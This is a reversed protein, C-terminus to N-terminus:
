KEAELDEIMGSKQFALKRREHKAYTDELNIFHKLAYKKQILKIQMEPNDRYKKISEFDKKNLEQMESPLADFFSLYMDILTNIQPVGKVIGGYQIVHAEALNYAMNQFNRLAYGHFANDTIKKWKKTLEKKNFDNKQAVIINNLGSSLLYQSLSMNRKNALNCLEKKEEITVRIKIKQTKAISNVRM